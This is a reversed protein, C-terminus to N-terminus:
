LPKWYQGPYRDEFAKKCATIGEERSKFSEHYVLRTDGNEEIIIGTWDEDKETQNQYNNSDCDLSIFVFVKKAGIQYEM